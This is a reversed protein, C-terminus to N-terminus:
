RRRAGTRNSRSPKSPSLSLMVVHTESGPRGARHTWRENLERLEDRLQTAEAPTLAATFHTQLVDNRMPPADAPADRHVSVNHHGAPKHIRLVGGFVIEPAAVKLAALLERNARALQAQALEDPLLHAPVEFEDAVTCYHRVPRGMRPSTSKITLLGLDHWRHTWYHVKSLPQGLERAAEAISNGDGFYPGLYQTGRGRALVASVDASTVM